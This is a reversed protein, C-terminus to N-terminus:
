GHFGIIQRDDAQRELEGAVSGLLQDVEEVLDGLCELAVIGSQEDVADVLERRGARRGRCARRAVVRRESGYRSAGRSGEEDAIRIDSM